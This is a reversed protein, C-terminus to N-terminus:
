TFLIKYKWDEEFSFAKSKICKWWDIARFRGLVSISDITFYNKEM